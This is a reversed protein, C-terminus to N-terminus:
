VTFGQQFLSGSEAEARHEGNRSPVGLMGELHGGRGQTKEAELELNFKGKQKRDESSLDQIESDKLNSEQSNAM